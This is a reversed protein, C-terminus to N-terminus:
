SNMELFIIRVKRQELTIYTSNGKRNVQYLLTLIVYIILQPKAIKSIM